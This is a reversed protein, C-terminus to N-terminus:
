LPNVPSQDGTTTYIFIYVMLIGILADRFSMGGAIAHNRVHHPAMRAYIAFIITLLLYVGLTRGEPKKLIDHIALTFIAVFPTFIPGVTTQQALNANKYHELFRKWQRVVLSLDKREPLWPSFHDEIRQILDIVSGYESIPIETQTLLNKIKGNKVQLSPFSAIRSINREDNYVLILQPLMDGFRDLSLPDRADVAEDPIPLAHAIKRKLTTNTDRPLIRLGLKMTLGHLFETDSKDWLDIIKELCELLEPIREPLNNFTLGKTWGKNRSERKEM